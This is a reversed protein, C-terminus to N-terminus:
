SFIENLKKSFGPFAINVELNKLGLRFVAMSMSLMPSTTGKRMCMGPADPLKVFFDYYM